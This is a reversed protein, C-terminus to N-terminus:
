RPTIADSLFRGPIVIMRELYKGGAGGRGHVTDIRNPRNTSEVLIEETIHFIDVKAELQAEGTVFAQEYRSRQGVVDSRCRRTTVPAIKRDIM